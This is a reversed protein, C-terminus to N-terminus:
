QTASLTQLEAKREPEDLEALQRVREFFDQTSGAAVHLSRFAPVLENYTAVTSLRANNIPAEMWGRYADVEWTDALARYRARLAEIIRVKEARVAQRSHDAPNATYLSELRAREALILEIFSERRANAGLYEEYAAAENRSLLWERLLIREVATAFGENFATDGKVFVVKHALEHFLLAALQAESRQVFTSLVPDDFWGLTSYAAVGGVWTDFGRADMEAALERADAEAFFGKYALCGVVLYCFTHPRLSFEPAAYVNWVVHTRGLDVYDGYSGGVPLGAAEAYSLVAQVYQLRARVVSDTAADALVKPIPERKLLLAM